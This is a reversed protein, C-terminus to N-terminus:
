AHYLSFCEGICLHVGCGACIIRSRVRKELRSSCVVCDREQTTHQPYHDKAVARAPNPRVSVRQPRQDLPFQELLQHTLEERFRLQGPHQQGKSWLQFANIICMDLLWWALRPWCRRAKRGPLYAYHLQSLVDVSRARYFYDRIARPCGVSVKRGSDNWRQLSAAEGPSCHNYLLWMTRQDQWVAVTADGKQRQLWEGRNLARIDEAPIAPM